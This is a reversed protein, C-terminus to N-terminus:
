KVKNRLLKHFRKGEFEEYIKHEEHSPKQYAPGYDKHDFAVTEYIKKENELSQAVEHPSAIPIEYKSLSRELIESVPVEYPFPRNAPKLIPLDSEM